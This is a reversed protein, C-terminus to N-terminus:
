DLPVVNSDNTVDHGDAAAAAPPALPDPLLPPPPLLLLLGIMRTSNISASLSREETENVAREEKNTGPTEEDEEAGSGSGSGAGDSAADGSAVAATAAAGIPRSRLKERKSDLYKNVSM